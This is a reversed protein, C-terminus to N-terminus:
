KLRNFYPFASSEDPKVYPSYPPIIEKSRSGAFM